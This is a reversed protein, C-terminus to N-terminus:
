QRELASFGKYSFLRQLNRRAILSPFVGRRKCECLLVAKLVARDFRHSFVGPLNRLYYKCSYKDDSAPKVKFYVGGPYLYVYDKSLKSQLVLINQGVKLKEFASMPFDINKVIRKVGSLTVNGLEVKDKEVEKVRVSCFYDQKNIDLVEYQKVHVGKYDISLYVILCYIM